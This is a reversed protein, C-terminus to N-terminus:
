FGADELSPVEPEDPVERNSASRRSSAPTKHAPPAQRPSEVEGALKAANRERWLMEAEQAKARKAEKNIDSLTVELKQLPSRDPAWDRRHAEERLASSRSVASIPEEAYRPIDSTRRSKQTTRAQDSNPGSASQIDRRPMTVPSNSNLDTTRIRLGDAQVPKRSIVPAVDEHNANSMASSKPNNNEDIHREEMDAFAERHFPRGKARQSFSRQVTPEGEGPGRYSIPPGRPVEPAMQPPLQVADTDEPYTRRSQGMSTRRSGGNNTKTRSKNQLILADLAPDHYLDLPNMSTAM